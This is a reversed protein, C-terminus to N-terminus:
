ARTNIIAGRGDGTPAPAAQAAAEILQVAAEGLQRQVSLEKRAVAASIQLDIPLKDISV